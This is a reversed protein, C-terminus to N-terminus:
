VEGESIVGIVSTFGHVFARDGVPGIEGNCFFGATPLPGLCEHLVNIDHNAKGYMGEGRGLCSFLLAAQSPTAALQEKQETLLHRLDEDATQGDRVQFQVTQGTRILDGVAIAGSQQDGGLLNRILFDGRSYEEQYENIVRGLFLASRALQQDREALKPLLDNLVKMPPVGGLEFVINKDARTVVLPQGIPKCGQSVITRLAIRGTLTIGIAGEDFIEGDLLLRNEGPQQAGSALGGVMPAGPYAETLADVLNLARISFPDALLIFNPNASPEVELQFHWFGPGSTEDLDKETIRIPTIQVDPLEGVLLSIAPRHEVEREVGIIGGGTCGLLHRAGTASRLAEALDSVHPLYQPHIFLLTLDTKAPGLQARVQRTLDEVAETWETKTSLASAFKM